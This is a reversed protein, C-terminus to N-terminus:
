LALMVKGNREELKGLQKLTEIAHLIEDKRCQSSFESIVKHKAVVEKTEVYKLVNEMLERHERGGGYLIDIDVAGSGNDIATDKLYHQVINVARKADDINVIDSLRMRASAEAFRIMSELQRPTIAVIGTQNYKNRINIYTSVLLDHATNSIRPKIRKAMVVYKRLLDIDILSVFRDPTNGNAEREGAQHINVLHEALAKDKKTDPVDVIKFIVDFRTLLPPELNIQSTLSDTPDFRGSVPNAAALISCRSSLTVHIGAKDVTIIQQEMATHISRRDDNSMKDFEDICALGQDAIVLAGAELTWLERKDKVAAATLGAASTGKGSAYIARPAVASMQVLLESKATGPDGVLLIHIDGRKRTGNSLQKPVGGFLQLVLAEKIIDNGWISPAISQKLLELVSPDSALKEIKTRDGDSIEITDWEKNVKEVYNAEIYMQMHASQSNNPGVPSARIIGAVIVRDGPRINITNVIDDYMYMVMRRPQISGISNDPNDQVEIERFDVKKSEDPRLKLKIKSASKGCVECKKPKRLKGDETEVRSIGGCESCEWAAVTIVPSPDVARRVIVDFRIMKGIDESKVENIKKQMESDLGSIRLHVDIHEKMYDQLAIKGIAIYKDPFDLVDFAFESQYNILEGFDITLSKNSPYTDIIKYIQKDYNGFFDMWIRQIEDDTFKSSM